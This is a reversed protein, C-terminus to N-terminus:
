SGRFLSPAPVLVVPLNPWSAPLELADLTVGHESTCLQITMRGEHDPDCVVDVSTVHYHHRAIWQPYSAQIQRAAAERATWQSRAHPADDCMMEDHESRRRKAGSHEIEEVDSDGSADEAEGKRKDGAHAKAGASGTASTREDILHARKLHPESAGHTSLLRARKTEADFEAAAPERQRKLTSSSPAPLLELAAAAM